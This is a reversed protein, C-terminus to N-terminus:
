PHSGMPSNQTYLWRLTARDRASLELIPQPGPSIAMADDPHDSHGWLGFAHGLEHLATAQIAELRQGPSILVEVQPQVAEGAEGPPLRLLTLTARGHSARLRGSAERALPPRRRWVRVQAREPDGVLVVPLLRQWQELARSVAVQWRQTPGTTPLSPEAPQVWVCWTAQLPWGLATTKLRHRYDGPATAIPPEPPRLVPAIPIPEGSRVRNCPPLTNPPAAPPLAGSHLMPALAAVWGVMAM